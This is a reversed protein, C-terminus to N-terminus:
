VDESEVYLKGSGHVIANSAGHDESESLESVSDDTVPGAQGDVGKWM